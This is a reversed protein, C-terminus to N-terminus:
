IDVNPSRAVVECSSPWNSPKMRLNKTDVAERIFVHMEVGQFKFLKFFGSFESTFSRVIIMKAYYFERINFLSQNLEM